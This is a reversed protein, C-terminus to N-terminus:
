KPVGICKNQSKDYSCCKIDNSMCHKKPIKACGEHGGKKSCWLNAAKKRPEVNNKKHMTPHTKFIPEEGEFTEIILETRKDSKRENFNIHRTYVLSLLLLLIFLIIDYIYKSLFDFIPILDDPIKLFSLYKIYKSQRLSHIFYGIAFISVSLALLNESAKNLIIDIM